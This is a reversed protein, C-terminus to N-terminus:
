SPHRRLLRWVHFRADAIVAQINSMLMFVECAIPALCDDRHPLSTLISLESKSCGAIHAVWGEKFLFQNLERYNEPESIEDESADLDQSWSKFLTFDNVVDNAM